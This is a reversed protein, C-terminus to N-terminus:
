GQIDVIKRIVGMGILVSTVGAYLLKKGTPDHFLMRAYSPALISIIGLMLVPLLSLIWGTLRGQASYIGVQGALRIRDSILLTTRRLIAILDGGTERQVLMAVLLFHLDDSPVRETLQAALDRFPVGLHQKRSIEAFEGAVPEPAQEAVVELASNISHGAQMSRALLDIAEPLVANFCRLRRRRLFLLWFIPTAGGLGGLSLSRVASMGLLTSSVCVIAAAVISWLVVTGVGMKTGAQLLLPTLRRGILSRELGGDLSTFWSAYDDSDSAEQKKKRALGSDRRQILATRRKLAEDAGKDRLGIWLLCFISASLVVLYVLGGKLGM